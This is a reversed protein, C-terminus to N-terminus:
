VADNVHSSVAQMTDRSQDLVNISHTTIGLLFHQDKYQVVVIRERSGIAISELLKMSGNRNKLASLSSGGKIVLYALVLVAVLALASILLEIV